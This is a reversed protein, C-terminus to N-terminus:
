SGAARGHPEVRFENSRVNLCVAYTKFVIFKSSQVKFRSGLIRM